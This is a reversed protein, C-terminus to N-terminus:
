RKVLIYAKAYDPIERVQSVYETNNGFV